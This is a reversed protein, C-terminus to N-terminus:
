EQYLLNELEICSGKVGCVLYQEYQVLSHLLCAFESNCYKKLNNMENIFRQLGYSNFEGPLICKSDWFGTKYATIIKDELDYKETITSNFLTTLTNNNIQIFYPIQILEINNHICYQKLLADRHQTKPKTYHTPGDFEFILKYDSLELYYDVIFYKGSPHKIRFQSIPQVDFLQNICEGLVTESLKDIFYTM